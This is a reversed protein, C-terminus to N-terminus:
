VGGLRGLRVGAVNLSGNSGVVVGSRGDVGIFVVENEINVMAWANGRKDLAFDDLFNAGGLGLFEAKDGPLVSGSPTILIRYLGNFSNTFYIYPGHTHLGNIGVKAFGKPNPAMEPIQIAIEYEATITDLRFVLGPTSEAILVTTPYELLSTMGNLNLAKPIDTIKTIIPSPGGFDVKWVSYSHPVTGTTFSYNGVVV